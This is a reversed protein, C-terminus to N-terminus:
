YRTAFIADEAPNSTQPWPMTDLEINGPGIERKVIFSENWNGKARAPLKYNNLPLYGVGPPQAPSGMENRMKYEQALNHFWKTVQFTKDILEQAISHNKIYFFGASRCADGVQKATEKLDSNTRLFPGIDIVPVDDETAM